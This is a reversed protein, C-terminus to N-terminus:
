KFRIKTSDSPVREAYGEHVLIPGVYSAIARKTVREQLWAGVSGVPPQRSTGLTITRGKFHELLRKYEQRTVETSHPKSGYWIDTGTQVSGDYHFGIKGAWTALARRLNQWLLSPFGVNKPDCIFNPKFRLFAVEHRVDVMPSPASDWRRYIDQSDDDLGPLVVRAHRVVASSLRLLAFFCRLESPEYLLGIVNGGHPVERPWAVATPPVIEDDPRLIQERVQQASPHLIYEYGFYCFALLYGMRLIAVWSRRAEYGSPLRLQVDLPMAGSQLTSVALAHLKPNSIELIGHLEIRDPYRHAEGGIEGEGISVRAPQPKKSVGSIFDDRELRRILHSELRYGAESNCDRCTLTVV